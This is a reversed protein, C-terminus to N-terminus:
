NKKSPTKLPVIPGTEKHWDRQGVRIKGKFGLVWKRMFQLLDIYKIGFERCVNPIKVRRRIDADYKELTM